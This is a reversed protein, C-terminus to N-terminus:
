PQEPVLGTSGLDKEMLEWLNEPVKVPFTVPKRLHASYLAGTIMEFQRLANDLCNGHVRRNDNLWQVMAGIFARQGENTERRYGTPERHVSPTGEIQYGWDRDQVHWARGKTGWFDLRMYMYYSDRRNSISLCDADECDEVYANLRNPYVFRILMLMPGPHVISHGNVGAACAYVSKPMVDGTFYQLLDILHPGMQNINARVACRAFELDGIAAEALLSHLRQCTPFYRRQTNVAVKLNYKAATLAMTQAQQQSLALPKEVIVGKVGAKGALELPQERVDPRTVINLIDPKECELMKELNAYRGPIGFEEGVKQLNKDNLDCIATLRVDELGQYAQCHERGRGGCGLVAAKYM